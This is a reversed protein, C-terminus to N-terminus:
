EKLLKEDVRALMFPDDKEQEDPDSTGRDHWEALREAWYFIKRRFIPIQMILLIFTASGFM